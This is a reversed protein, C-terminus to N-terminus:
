QDLSEKKVILTKGQMPMQAGVKEVAPKKSDKATHDPTGLHFWDQNLEEFPQFTCILGSVYNLFLIFAISTSLLRM